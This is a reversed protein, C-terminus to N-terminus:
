PGPRGPRRSEPASRGLVLNDILRVNGMRVAVALMCPGKEWRDMTGPDVAAVYEIASIAPEAALLARCRRELADADAGGSEFLDGASQLARHICPAAARQGTTLYFNRSSLALGDPARVTPVAVVQTPIDLDAVLRRIVALQQGDKQGFYARDPSVQALLKTVVTAVGDFHGPRADGELGLAPGGMSVTAAFGPRYMQGAVPVYALDVRAATLKKLDRSLPRPYSDFDEGRGFQTPNVFISVVVSACQARAQRVLAMHGDHLAGM